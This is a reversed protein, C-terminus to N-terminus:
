STSPGSSAGLASGGGPAGTRSRAGAATLRWPADAGGFSLKGMDSANAEEIGDAELTAATGEPVQIDKETLPELKASSSKPRAPEERQRPQQLRAASPLEQGREASNLM